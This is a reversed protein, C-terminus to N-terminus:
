DVQFSYDMLFISIDAIGAMSPRVFKERKEIMERWTLDWLM